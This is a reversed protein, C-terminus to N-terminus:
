TTLIGLNLLTAATCTVYAANVNGNFPFANYGSSVGWIFPIGAVLSIVDQPLGPTARTIAAAPSSGGTLQASGALILPQRGTNLSSAFTITVANGPLAGAANCNVNSAGITALAQLATQITSANANYAISTLAGNFSLPITGGTPTGTVTLTQVDATNLGNTKITCNTTSCMYVLQTNSQNFALTLATNASNAAFGQNPSLTVTAGVENDYGSMNSGQSTQLTIALAANLSM